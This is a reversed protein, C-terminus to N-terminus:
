EGAFIYGCGREQARGLAWVGSPVLQIGPLVGNVWEEYVAKPDLNMKAAVANSYVKTALDCVCFMAGREQMRKVGEIQPLPFDGEQPEYYPNRKYPEGSAQKINFVEGLPYKKWLEDKFAIPIAEHRLVTVATMQEDPTGTENNSLYFAWNWIVPFGKHPTSGDYVIRHKGKINKFWNEADAMKNSDAIPVDAYMPNTLVSITSATAGLALAGLFQRRSNTNTTRM